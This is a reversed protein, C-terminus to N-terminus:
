FNRQFGQVLLQLSTTRNLQEESFTNAVVNDCFLENQFSFAGARFIVNAKKTAFLLIKQFGHMRELVYKVLM